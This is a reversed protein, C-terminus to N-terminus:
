RTSGTGQYRQYRGAPGSPVNDVSILEVWIFLIYYLDVFRVEDIIKKRKGGESTSNQRKRKQGAYEDPALLVSPDEM